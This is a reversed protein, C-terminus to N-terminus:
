GASSTHDHVIRWGVDFRRLVLTFLGHPADDPAEGKRDLLWRGFVVAADDALVMVDLDSFTLRGMADADAYARRYSALVAEWGRNVTAGGAFRLEDSRWYCQMYRELDGANWGAEAANMLALIDATPDAQEACGALLLTCLFVVTLRSM